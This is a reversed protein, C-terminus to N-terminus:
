AAAAHATWVWGLLEDDLDDPSHLEIHHLWTRSTTRVIEKVRDSALEYPLAVSLVVPVTSSIYQQPDWLFAFGRRRRFAIQSRTARVEVDTGRLEDALRRYIQLGVPSAALVEEPTSPTAVTQMADLRRRAPLPDCPRLDDPDPVSAM